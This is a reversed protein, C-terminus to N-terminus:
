APRDPPPPPPLFVLIERLADTVTPPLLCRAALDEMSTYPGRLWRDMIVQQYQPPSLGPLTGIVPEPVANLDILGGDDFTRPLDPRGIRLDHRAAPHHHLLFRAQERLVRRNEARRSRQGTVVGWVRRDLLLVHLAGGLWAVGLGLLSLLELDTAEAEADLDAFAAVFGVVLALYCAAALTTRWSRRWAAYVALVMWTLFGFSLIAAALGLVTGAVSLWRPARRPPLRTPVPPPFIPPAAGPQGTPVAPSGAPPPHTGVLVGPPSAPWGPPVPSAPWSM